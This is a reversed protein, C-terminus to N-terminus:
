FGGPVSHSFHTGGPWITRVVMYLWFAGQLVVLIWALRLCDMQGAPRNGARVASIAAIVFLPLSVFFLLPASIVAYLPGRIYMSVFAVVAAIIAIASLVCSDLARLSYEDDLMHTKKAM